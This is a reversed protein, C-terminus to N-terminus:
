ALWKKFYKNRPFLLILLIILSLLTILNGITRVPTNTLKILVNHNGEGIKFTVLGLCFEENRCDDHWHDVLQGDVWVKMGPFDFIPARMIAVKSVDVEWAKFDSGKKVSKFDALGELTEPNKPAESTPPLKAYIPLYDFISITLQKQWSTGSFKDQDTIDYWKNPKFFPLYMILCAM